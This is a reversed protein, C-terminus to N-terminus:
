TDTEVGALAGAWRVLYGAGSIVTTAGVGYTLVVVLGFDRLGLLALLGLRVPDLLRRAVLAHLKITCIKRGQAFYKLQGPLQYGTDSSKIDEHIVCTDAKPLVSGLSLDALVSIFKTKRYVIKSGIEERLTKYRQQFRRSGSSDYIDGGDTLCRQVEIVNHECM